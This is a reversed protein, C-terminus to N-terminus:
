AARGADKARRRKAVFGVVGLGGLLLVTVSPEPIPHMAVVNFSLSDIEGFATSCCVASLHAFPMTDQDNGDAHAGSDFSSDTLESSTWLCVFGSCSKSVTLSYDLIAGGREREGKDRHPAFVHQVQGIVDLETTRTGVEAEFTVSFDWLNGTAIVQGQSNHIPGQVTGRLQASFDDEFVGVDNPQQVLLEFSYETAKFSLTPSSTADGWLPNDDNPLQGRFADFLSVSDAIAGVVALGGSLLTMNGSVQAHSALPLALSVATALTRVHTARRSRPRPNSMLWRRETTSVAGRAPGMGRAMACHGLRLVSEIYATRTRM